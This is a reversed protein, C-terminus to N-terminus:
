TLQAPTASGQNKVGAGMHGNLKSGTSQHAPSLFVPGLSPHNRLRNLSTSFLCHQQSIALRKSNTPLYLTGLTDVSPGYDM